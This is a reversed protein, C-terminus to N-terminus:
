PIWHKVKDELTMFETLSEEVIRHPKKMLETSCEVKSLQEMRYRSIQKVINTKNLCIKM